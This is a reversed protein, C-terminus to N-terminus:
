ERGLFEWTWSSATDISNGSPNIGALTTHDSGSGDSYQGISLLYTSKVICKEANKECSVDVHLLVGEDTNEYYMLVKTDCAVATNYKSIVYVDDSSVTLQFYRYACEEDHGKQKSDYYPWNNQSINYRLYQWISDKGNTLANWQTRYSDYSIGAIYEELKESASLAYARVQANSAASVSSRYASYAGALLSLSLIMIVFIVALATIMASGSDNKLSKGIM